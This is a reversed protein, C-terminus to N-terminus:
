MGKYSDVDNRGVFKTNTCSLVIKKLESSMNQGLTQSALALYIKFQRGETLVHQISEGIYNHCEDLM